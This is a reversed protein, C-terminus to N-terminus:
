NKIFNVINRFLVKFKETQLENNVLSTAVIMIFLKYINKPHKPTNYITM